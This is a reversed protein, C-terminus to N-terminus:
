RSGLQRGGPLGLRLQLTLVLLPGTLPPRPPWSHAGPRPLVRDGRAQHRSLTHACSPLSSAPPAPPGEGPCSSTAASGVALAEPLAGGGWGCASSLRDIQVIFYLANSFLSHSSVLLLSTM